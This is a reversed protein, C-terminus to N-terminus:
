GFIKQNMREVVSATHSEALHSYRKVMQLTKHGLVEAIELLSAGSMALYSATTHRVDHFHFDKLGIEKVALDWFHDVDFPQGTRATKHGPFVFNTDIRRVKATSACFTWRWGRVAVRRREGNKTTNLIIVGKQLDVQEWTLFRVESRRMGTSLTLV